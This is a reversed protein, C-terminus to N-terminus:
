ATRQQTRAAIYDEIASESIMIRRPSTRVVQIRGEAVVRRLTRHHIGLRQAADAIALLRTPQSETQTM